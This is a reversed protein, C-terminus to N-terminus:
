PSAPPLIELADRAAQAYGAAYSRPHAAALAFPREAQAWERLTAVTSECVALEPPVYPDGSVPVTWERPLDGGRQLYEDLQGVLYALRTGFGYTLKRIEELAADPDFGEPPDNQTM